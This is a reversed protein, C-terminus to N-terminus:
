AGRLKEFDARVEALSPVKDLPRRKDVSRRTRLAAEALAVALGYDADGLSDVADALDGIQDSGAAGGAFAAFAADIARLAEDRTFDALKKTPKQVRRSMHM